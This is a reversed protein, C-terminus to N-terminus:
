SFRQLILKKTVNYIFSVVLKTNFAFTFRAKFLNFQVLNRDRM